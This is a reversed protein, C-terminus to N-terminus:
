EKLKSLPLEVEFSSATKKVVVEKGTLIRIRQIINQLGIGTSAEAQIKPSLNNLILLRSPGGTKLEVTLPRDGSVENHKIANEMLLQLTLPPLGFVELWDVPFDQVLRLNEGYRQKQLFFYTRLMELEESLPIADRDRYRVMNRFYDSLRSVYEIAKDQDEDIIAMLTNFSNFLFHPNVQSKLTAFQYEIKEKKLAEEKRFRKERDNLIVVLLFLFLATALLIFWTEKWFVKRIVFRYTASGGKSFNEGLGANVQFEYRGPPLNNYNVTRESTTLWENNLGMLRYRYHVSGPDAYWIGNFSFAINNQNYDFVSDSQEAVNRMYTSVGSISVRVNRQMVKDDGTYVYFGDNGAIWLRGLPDTGLANLDADVSTIGFAPGINRVKLTVADILSIGHRTVVVINGCSDTRIGSIVLDSLGQEPGINVIRKGDYRYVGSRQTSYWINGNRDETLSYVIEDPNGGAIKKRNGNEYGMPGDGDTGLWLDGQRDVLVSYVFGDYGGNDASLVTFVPEPPYTVNKSRKFDARVIGGLTAMYMTSDRGSIAIVDNVGPAESVPFRRLRGSRSDLCFLGRDFTGIWIRKWRDTYLSVVQLPKGEFNLPVNTIVENGAPDVKLRFFGAPSSFWACDAATLVVAQISDPVVFGPLPIKQLSLGPSFFLRGEAAVWLNDDRDIFLLGANIFPAVGQPRIPASIAESASPVRVIGNSSTSLWWGSSVYVASNITGYGWAAAQPLTTFRGNAPDFLIVGKEDTGLLLDGGPAPAIAKVIKDPLGNKEDYRRFRVKDGYPDIVLLGADTAAVIGGAAHLHMQYIFLDEGAMLRFWKQGRRFFVGQGYTAMWLSNDRLRLLGMVPTKAPSDLRRMTDADLIYVSGDDMGCLLGGGEDALLTSVHKKHPVDAFVVSSFRFGDYRFLGSETGAYIWGKSTQSIATVQMEDRRPDIVLERFVPHQAYLYSLPSIVLWLLNWIFIRIM